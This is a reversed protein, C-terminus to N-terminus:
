KGTGNGEGYREGSPVGTAYSYLTYRILRDNSEQRELRFGPEEAPRNVIFSL